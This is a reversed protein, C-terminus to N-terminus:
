ADNIDPEEFQTLLEKISVLAFSYSINDKEGEEFVVMVSETSQPHLLIKIVKKDWGNFYHISDSDEAGNEYTMYNNIYYIGIGDEDSSILLINREPLLLIDRWHYKKENSQNSNGYWQSLRIYSKYDGRQFINVYKGGGSMGYSSSLLAIYSDNLTGKKISEYTGNAPLSYSAILYPFDPNKFDYELLYKPYIFNDVAIVKNNDLLLDDVCKEHKKFPMEVSSFKNQLISYTAVLEHSNINNFFTHNNEGGLIFHNKFVCISKPSIMSPFTLISINEM